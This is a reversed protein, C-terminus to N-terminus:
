KVGGQLVSLTRRQEANKVSSPTAYNGTTTTVSAHGLAAAVAHGTIGREFALSSHLGRMSQANVVPVGALKCIRIVQERVFGRDHHGFVLEDSAKGKILKALYPQLVEPIEQTRQGAETKSEPIWLLRGGDDVDRVVRSVVESPRFGMLVNVMAVVAGVDDQDALEIAKVLWKRAEDIRLQPKGKKRKGVGEVNTAPNVTILKTKMCWQLFTKVESLTNRHTDVSVKQKLAEYYKACDTEEIEDILMEVDPFYSSIRFATTDVSRQKNGKDHLQHVKYKKV